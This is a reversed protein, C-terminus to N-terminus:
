YDVKSVFLDIGPFPKTLAFSLKEFTFGEVLRFEFNRIIISLLVKLELHAMKMGLCFRPGAAFPLYTSNSVKSKIEPNLWRSPNFYKADDGWILPDHHICLHSYGNSNGPPAIRLIEKYVCELYKLQDIEDFTPCHNCDTFIEFIEKRLREQMNPNKALYYLAWSLSTSTTKHGAMLITMVMSLLESHKLQENAPMVENTQILLSLFDKERVTANKKEAILKEVLGIIDLTTKSILETITIREEKKNGIQNIWIDKLKHGAQVFIPLMEKVNAFSFSPSMMKRQRKHAEGQAFTISEDLIDKILPKSIHYKPFEYGRNVIIEQVLKQDPILLYPVNLVHLRVIGGYQKILHVFAEGQKKNYFAYHGFIFSDVPSSPIKRLPSLYLPYIYLQYLAYGVLTLIAALYYNM